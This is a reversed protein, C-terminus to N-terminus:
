RDTRAHSRSRDSCMEPHRKSTRGARVDVLMGETEARPLCDERDVILSLLKVREGESRNAFFGRQGSNASERLDERASIAVRARCGDNRSPSAENRLRIRCRSRLDSRFMRCSVRYTM